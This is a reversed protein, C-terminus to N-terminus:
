FLGLQRTRIWGENGNALQVSTWEDNTSLVTLKTGEHLSFKSKSGDTPASLVQVVQGTVIARTKKTLDHLAAYGISFSTLFIVLCIVSIFFGSRKLLLNKSVIFIFLFVLGFLLSFITVRAWGNTSFLTYVGSRIAGAFFNEKSEIKDIIKSNAIQLNNKIDDDNPSLKKALEYNYIAKGLQNDKYYANGLNYYLASSTNGGALIKEYFTISQKYQQKSYAKAASDALPDAFSTYGGLCFLIAWVFKGIKLRRNRM